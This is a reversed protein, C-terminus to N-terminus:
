NGKETNNTKRKNQSISLLLVLAICKSENIEQHSTPNKKEEYENVIKDRRIFQFTIYIHLYKSLVNKSIQAKFESTFILINLM